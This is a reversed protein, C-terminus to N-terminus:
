KEGTYLFYQWAGMYARRVEQKKTQFHAQLFPLIHSDMRVHNKNMWRKFLPFRSNHFDVVAIIGGDKLDEKAQLILEQWHPNVMTLCYSFLIVDAKPSSTEAGYADNRLILKNSTERLKEHAVDLMEKSVDWGILKAKPYNQAFYKLNYGTGCGVEMITIRETRGFPLWDIIWHRGFLFTWRTADYIKAHVNYYREMKQAQQQVIPLNLESTQLM